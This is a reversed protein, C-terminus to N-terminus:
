IVEETHVLMIEREIYFEPKEQRLVTTGDEQMGTEPILETVEETGDELKKTVTIGAVGEVKRIELEGSRRIGLERQVEPTMREAKGPKKSGSQEIERIEKRASRGTFFGIVGRIDLRIFVIVAILAFLIMAVLCVLYLIHFLELQVSIQEM